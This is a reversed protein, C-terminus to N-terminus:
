NMQSSYFENGNSTRLLRFEQFYSSGDTHSTLTHMQSDASPRETRWCESSALPSSQPIVQLVSQPMSTHSMHMPQEFSISQPECSGWSNNSLLSLARHFEPAPKAKSPIIPEEWGATVVYLKDCQNFACELDMVFALATNQCQVRVQNLVEAASGKAKSVSGNSKHHHQNAIGNTLDTGPLHLQGDSGGIEAPKTIYEKTITFKSISTSDWTLNANPRAHVLPARDWALSMRQREDFFSSSLRSPNLHVSGSQKRRRANHDSLRRRCSKKKEDFESLGHFRSCQQCFRRELGAVIVKQCKSHSECVRHKRHYDKASSLDLNCGEVQCRLIRQTQNCSKLKKVPTFSPVPVTSFSSSQANSGACTDEFYTRKGLKLGLLQDGSGVSAELVPSTGAAKAKASEKKNYDSPNAKSADLTFKSTKVEGASSSNISASKSSKSFSALELDSSSGGSRSASGSSYLFGSDTGKEGDTEFDTPSLQKSNETTMANFMILNEWDWQLQPKGNWEMLSVSSM